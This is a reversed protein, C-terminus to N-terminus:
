NLNIEYVIYYVFFFNFLVYEIFVVYDLVFVMKKKFYFSFNEVRIIKIM